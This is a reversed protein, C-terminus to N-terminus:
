RDIPQIATLVILLDMAGTRAEQSLFTHPFCSRGSAEREIQFGLCSLTGTVKALFFDVGSSISAGNQFM